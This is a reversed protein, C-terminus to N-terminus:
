EDYVQFPQDPNRYLFLTLTDGMPVFQVGSCFEGQLLTLLNDPSIQIGLLYTGSIEDWMVNDWKTQKRGPKLAPKRRLTPLRM